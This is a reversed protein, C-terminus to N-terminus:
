STLHDYALIIAQRGKDLGNQYGIRHITAIFQLKENFEDTILKPNWNGARIVDILTAWDQAEYMEVLRAHYIKQSQELAAQEM